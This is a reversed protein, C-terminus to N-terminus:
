RTAEEGSAGSEASRSEMYSRNVDAVATLMDLEQGFVDVNPIDRRTRMARVLRIFGKEVLYEVRFRETDPDLFSRIAGEVQPEVMSRLADPGAFEVTRETSSKSIPNSTLQWGEGGASDLVDTQFVRGPGETANAMRAFVPFGGYNGAVEAEDLDIRGDIREALPALAAELDAKARRNFYVALYATAVLAVLVVLCMVLGTVLYPNVSLVAQQLWRNVCPARLCVAMWQVPCALVM